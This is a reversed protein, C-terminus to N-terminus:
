KRKQSKRKPSARKQSKRSSLVISSKRAPSARKVSKRTELKLPRGLLHKLLLKKKAPLHKFKDMDAQLKKRIGREVSLKAAAEEIFKHSKLRLASGKRNENALIVTTMHGSDIRGGCCEYSYDGRLTMCNHMDDKFNKLASIPKGRYVNEGNDKCANKYVGYLNKCYPNSICPVMQSKSIAIFNRYDRPKMPENFYNVDDLASLYLQKLELLPMNMLTEIAHM